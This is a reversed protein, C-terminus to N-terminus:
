HTRWRPDGRSEPRNRLGRADGFSMAGRAEGARRPRIQVRGVAGERSPTPRPLGRPIAQAGACAILRAAPAPRNTLVPLWPPLMSVVSVLVVLTLLTAFTIM